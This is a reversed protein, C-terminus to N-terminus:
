GGNLGSGVMSLTLCTIGEDEQVDMVAYETNDITIMKGVVPTDPLSGTACFLRRVAYYIGDVIATQAPQREDRDFVATVNATQKGMTVSYSAAFDDTDLIVAINDNAIQDRLSM